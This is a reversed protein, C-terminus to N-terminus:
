AVTVAFLRSKNSIVLQLASYIKSVYGNKNEFEQTESRDRFFEKSVVLKIAKPGLGYIPNGGYQSFIYRKDRFALAKFGGNGVGSSDVYRQQAQLQGEYLAHPTSGSVLFKVGMQSGSGKMASNDATTLVAEIDSGDSLYTGVPHRWFTETSADIGGITGQGSSPLLTGFGTFGNTTTSFLAQEILDDHSQLGNEMLSKVLAVKQNESPNMAEDKKFWVMPVALEAVSYSAASVVDTKTTSTPDTDVAIFGAGPNRRWDLPVEITPGLSKREIVGQKEFERMLSNEAWQNTPKRSEALVAPFSAALIQSISLAM